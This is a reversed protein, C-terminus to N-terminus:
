AAIQVRETGSVRKSGRSWGGCNGCKYRQFKGSQTYAHGQKELADKGCKPCSEDGNFASQSPLSPIWPLLRWYLEETLVTDHKNYKCMRSWAKADGDACAQWLRWGEHKVKGGVSLDESVFGLKNSAFSFQRRATKLLDIHRFPSPPGLGLVAFARNLKPVDFSASNYGLVADAEDLLEWARRIMVDYGDHFESRFEVGKEGVWKAAFSIIRAPRIVMDPSLTVNYLGWSWVLHPLNEIDISLIRM